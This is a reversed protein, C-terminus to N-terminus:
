SKVDTEVDDVIKEAVVIGVRSVFSSTSMNTREM